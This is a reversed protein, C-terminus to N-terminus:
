SQQKLRVRDCDHGKQRSLRFLTFEPSRQIQVFVQSTLSKPEMDDSLKFLNRNYMSFNGRRSGFEVNTDWEGYRYVIAWKVLVEDWVFMKNEDCEDMAVAVAVDAVDENMPVRRGSIWEPGARNWALNPKLFAGGLFAGDLDVKEVSLGQLELQVRQVLIQSLVEGSVDDPCPSFGGVHLGRGELGVTFDEPKLPESLTLEDMAPPGHQGSEAGQGDLPEGANCPLVGSLYDLELSVRLKVRLLPQVRSSFEEVRQTQRSVRLLLSDQLKRLDLVGPEGHNSEQTEGDLSRGGAFTRKVVPRGVQTVREVGSNKVGETEERLAREREKDDDDDQIIGGSPNHEVNLVPVWVESGEYDGRQYSTAM